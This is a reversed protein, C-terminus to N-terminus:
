LQVRQCRTTTHSSVPGPQSEASLTELSVELHQGARSEDQSCSSGAELTVCTALPDPEKCTPVLAGM